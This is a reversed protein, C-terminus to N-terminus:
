RGDVASVRFYKKIKEKIDSVFLEYYSPKDFEIFDTFM